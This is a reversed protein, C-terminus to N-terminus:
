NNIEVDSSEELISLTGIGSKTNQLLIINIEGVNPINVHFSIGQEFGFLQLHGVMVTPPTIDMKCGKKYIFTSTNGAIMNALEGVFSHLIEGEVPMGFMSEGLKSFTQSDGEIVMRGYVEGTIGILVGMESQTVTKEFVIPAQIEIPIPIVQGVSEVISQLLERIGENTQM